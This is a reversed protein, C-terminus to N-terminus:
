YNELKLDKLAADAFSPDFWDDVSFGKCIMKNNLMYDIVSQYHARVFPDFVPVMWNKLPLGQYEQVVVDYPMYGMTMQELVDARNRPLSVHRPGHYDSTTVFPGTNLRAGARNM